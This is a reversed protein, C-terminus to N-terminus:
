GDPSKYKIFDIPSQFAGQKAMISYDNDTRDLASMSTFGRYQHMEFDKSNMNLTAVSSMVEGSSLATALPIEKGSWVLQPQNMPSKGRTSNGKTADGYRRIPILRRRVSGARM